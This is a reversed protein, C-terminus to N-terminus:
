SEQDNKKKRRCEKMMYLRMASDKREQRCFSAQLSNRPSLKRQQYTEELKKIDVHSYDKSISFGSGRGSEREM